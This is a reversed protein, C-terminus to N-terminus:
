GCFVLVVVAATVGAVAGGLAITGIAVGVVAALASLRSRRQRRM